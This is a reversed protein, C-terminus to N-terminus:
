SNKSKETIYTQNPISALQSHAQYIGEDMHELNEASLATKTQNIKGDLKKSVYFDRRYNLLIIVAFKIKKMYDGGKPHNYLLDYVNAIIVM